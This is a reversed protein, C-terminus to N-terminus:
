SSFASSHADSPVTRTMRGRGSFGLSSWFAHAEDLCHLEIRMGLPLAREWLLYTRTGVGRRRMGEPVKLFDVTAHADGIWTAFAVGPHLLLHVRLATTWGGDAGQGAPLAHSLTSLDSPM